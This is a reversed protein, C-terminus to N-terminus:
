NSVSCDKKQLVIILKMFYVWYWLSLSMHTSTNHQLSANSHRTASRTMPRVVSGCLLLVALHQSLTAKCLREWLRGCAIPSQWCNAIRSRDTFSHIHSSIIIIYSRAIVYVRIEYLTPPLLVEISAVFSKKSAICYSRECRLAVSLCGLKVTAINM